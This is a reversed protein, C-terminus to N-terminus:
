PSSSPIGSQTADSAERRFKILAGLMAAIEACRDQLEKLETMTTYGIEHSIILQTWLEALSGKAMHFFRISDKNTDRWEGEAINSPVSVAARRIQDKLSFDTAFSGQATMAYIDVALKKSKQWVHLRQFGPSGNDQVSQAKKM